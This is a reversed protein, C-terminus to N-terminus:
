NCPLYILFTFTDLFLYVKQTLVLAAESEFYIPNLKQGPAQQKKKQGCDTSALGAKGCDEM